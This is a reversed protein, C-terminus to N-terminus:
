HTILSKYKKYGVKEAQEPAWEQWKHRIHRSTKQKIYSKTFNFPQYHEVKDGEASFFPVRKM